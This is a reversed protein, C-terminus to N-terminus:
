KVECTEVRFKGGTEIWEALIEKSLEDYYVDSICVIEKVGALILELLCDKCPVGMYSYLISENTSYGYKACVLLTMREAHVASCMDLDSGSRSELRPCPDCISLQPPPGNWGVIRKGSKLVLVCGLHKKQCTSYRAADKAHEMPSVYRFRNVM